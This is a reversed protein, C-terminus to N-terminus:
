VIYKRSTPHRKNTSDTGSIRIAAFGEFLDDLISRVPEPNATLNNESRSERLNQHPPALNSNRQHHLPPSPRSFSSNPDGTATSSRPAEASAQRPLTSTSSPRSRRAARYSAPQDYQPPDSAKHNMKFLPQPPPAVAPRTAPASRTRSSESYSSDTLAEDRQLGNKLSIRVFPSGLATSNFKRGNVLGSKDEIPVPNRTFLFSTAPLQPPFYSTKHGQVFSAWGDREPSFSTGADFISSKIRGSNSSGSSKHSDLRDKDAHQKLDANMSKNRRGHWKSSANPTSVLDPRHSKVKGPMPTSDKSRHGPPTNFSARDTATTTGPDRLDITPPLGIETRGVHKEKRATTREHRRGSGPVRASRPEKLTYWFKSISEATLDSGILRENDSEDSQYGESTRKPSRSDPMPVAILRRYAWDIYHVIEGRLIKSVWRHMNRIIETLYYTGWTSDLCTAWVCVM